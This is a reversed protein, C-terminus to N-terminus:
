GANTRFLFRCILDSHKDVCVTDRVKGYRYRIMDYPLASHPQYSRGALSVERDASAGRRSMASSRAIYSCLDQTAAPVVLCIADRNANRPWHTAETSVVDVIPWTSQILRSSRETCAGAMIAM